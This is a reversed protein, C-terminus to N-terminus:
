RAAIQSQHLLDCVEHDCIQPFDEYWAGVAYFPEPVLPCIIEDAEHNLGILSDNAAVPVALIVRAVPMKRLAMLAAKVTAGTAIGDDILIITKGKLDPRPSTGRYASERRSLEAKEQEQITQIDTQSISLKQILTQNLFVTDGSAIAGMALEEHGPVGLKRVLFVDLPLKLSSAVEYAIPVGGRPLALCLVNAQQQYANLYKALIRGADQRNKYKKLSNVM